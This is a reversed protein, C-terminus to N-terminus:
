AAAQTGHRDRGWSTAWVTAATFVGFTIMAGGALLFFASHGADISLLWTGIVVVLVLRATQATVAGLVKAAGQSSFYLSIGVGLFAYLPGVLTLYEASAARVGADNTFMGVWLDPFIAVLSGLLGVGVLSIGAGAWAV